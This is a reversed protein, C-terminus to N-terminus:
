VIFYNIGVILALTAAYPVGWSSDDAHPQAIRLMRGKMLANHSHYEIASAISRVGGRGPGVDYDEPEPRLMDVAESLAAPKGTLAVAFDDCVDEEEQAMKRFEFLAVPNYFMCVRLLYALILVPRRSRRIHGLEHAFAARLHDSTFSKIIGISLFIRPHLGTSSFIVLDEDHLIEVAGREIPLGNLAESVKLEVAEEVVEAVPAADGRM